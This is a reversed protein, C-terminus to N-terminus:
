PLEEIIRRALSTRNAAHVWHTKQQEFFKRDRPQVGTPDQEASALAADLAEIAALAKQRNPAGVSPRRASLGQLGYLAHHFACFLPYFLRTARFRLNPMRDGVTEGIADIVARFRKEHRARHPFHDDYRKYAGDIVAPSGERIGEQMAILLESVFEAEAMRLIQKPTFIKNEEFFGVFVNALGYACSKFDGFWKANRLEQHKLRESYTNIRAFIDYIDSDPMDQLLDVVFEYKLIDRQTGEDLDSFFSGGLKEDHAKSLKFGGRLYSLVTRLRQQGDVIERRTRGTKPAIQQRMFLKPVPKGKIITDILYSKAKPSWVDRRQFKPALDLEERKEWQAFDHVSYNRSNFRQEM